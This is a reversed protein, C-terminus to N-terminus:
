FKITRLKGLLAKMGFLTRKTDLPPIGVAQADTEKGNKNKNEREIKKIKGKEEERREPLIPYTHNDTKKKEKEKYFM